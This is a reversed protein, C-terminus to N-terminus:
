RRNMAAGQLKRCFKWYRLRQRLQRTPRPLVRSGRPRAARRNAPKAATDLSGRQSVPNPKQPVPAPSAPACSQLHIHISLPRYVTDSCTVAAHTMLDGVTDTLLASLPWAFTLLARPPLHPLTARTTPSLTMILVTNMPSAEYDYADEVFAVEKRTAVFVGQLSSDTRKLMSTENALWQLGDAVAIHAHQHHHRKQM